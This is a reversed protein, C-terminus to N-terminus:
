RAARWMATETPGKDDDRVPQSPMVRTIGFEVSHRALRKGFRANPSHNAPVGIDRYYSGLIARIVQVTSFTGGEGALRQIAERIQADTIAEVRGAVDRAAAEDEASRPVAGVSELWTAAERWDVHFWEKGVGAQAFQAHASREAARAEEETAYRFAAAVSLHRPNGRKLNANLRWEPPNNSFGIKTWPGSTEGEHPEESILYVYSV